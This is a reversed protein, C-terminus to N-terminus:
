KLVLFDPIETPRAYPFVAEKKLSYYTNLGSVGALQLKELNLKYEDCCLDKSFVIHKVEGVILTTGNTKIPLEEIFKMGLQIPSGKVFPAKFGKIYDETFNCVDFESIEKAIKASTYHAQAINQLAIANITYEQLEMINSYTHREVDVTTPRMIFGILAPSSGLHM